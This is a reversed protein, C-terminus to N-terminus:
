HLSLNSQRFLDCHKSAVPPSEPIQFILLFSTLFQSEMKPIINSMRKVVSVRLFKINLTWSNEDMKTMSKAINLM